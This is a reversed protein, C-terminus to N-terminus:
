PHSNDGFNTCPFLLFSILGLGAIDFFSLISSLIRYLPSLYHIRFYFTFDVARQPSQSYSTVVSLPATVVVVLTCVVPRNNYASYCYQQLQVTLLPIQPHSFRDTNFSSCTTCRLIQFLYM